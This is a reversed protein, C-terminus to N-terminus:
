PTTKRYYAFALFATIVVTVTTLTIQWDVTELTKPEEIYGGVITNPQQDGTITLAISVNMTAGDFDAYVTLNYTGPVAFVGAGITLISQNSNWEGESSPLIVQQPNFDTSIGILPSASLDVPLPAPNGKGSVNITSQGTGGVPVTISLPDASLGIGIVIPAYCLRTM